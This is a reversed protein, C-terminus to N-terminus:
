LQTNGIQWDTQMDQASEYEIRAKLMQTLLTNNVHMCVFMCTCVYTCVVIIHVDYYLVIVQTDSASSLRVM